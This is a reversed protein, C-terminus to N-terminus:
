DGALRAFQALDRRSGDRHREAGRLVGESRYGSAMAVKQSGINEVDALIEIRPVGRSFAWATITRVAASAVGRGRAWPAVWYGVEGNGLRDPPKLGVVGVLEDRSDAIAFEAGGAKWAAPVVETLYFMADALGYPSPMLPIFHATVPDDCARAVTPADSEMPPRLVFPGAPIPDSPLM